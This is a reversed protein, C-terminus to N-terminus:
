PKNKNKQGAGLSDKCEPADAKNSRSRLTEYNNHKNIQTISTNALDRIGKKEDLNVAHSYLNSTKKSTKFVAFYINLSETATINIHM